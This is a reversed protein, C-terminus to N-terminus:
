EFLAAIIKELNIGRILLNCGIDYGNGSILLVVLELSIQFLVLSQKIMVHGDDSIPLLKGAQSLDPSLPLFSTVKESSRMLM